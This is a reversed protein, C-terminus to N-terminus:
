PRHTPHEFFSFTVFLVMSLSSLCGSPCINNTYLALISIPDWSSRHSNSAYSYTLQIFPSPLPGYEQFLILSAFCRDGPNIPRSVPNQLVPSSPSTTLIPLALFYRSLFRWFIDLSSFCYVMGKIVPPHM